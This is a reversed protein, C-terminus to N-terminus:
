NGFAYTKIADTWTLQHQEVGFMLPVVKEIYPDQLVESLCNHSKFIMDKQGANEIVNWYNGDESIQSILGGHTIIASVGTKYASRVFLKKCTDQFTAIFQPVYESSDMDAPMPVLMIWHQITQNKVSKFTETENPGKPVARVPIAMIGNLMPIIAESDGTEALDQNIKILGEWVSAKHTWVTQQSGEEVLDLGFYQHSKNLDSPLSLVSPFKYVKWCVSGLFNLKTRQQILKNLEYNPVETKKTNSNENVLDPPLTEMKMRASVKKEKVNCLDKSVQNKGNIEKANPSEKKVVKANKPPDKAKIKRKPPMTLLVILSFFQSCYTLM